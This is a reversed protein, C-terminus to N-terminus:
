GASLPHDLWRVPFRDGATEIFKDLQELTLPGPLPYRAPITRQLDTHYRILTAFDRPFKDEEVGVFEGRQRARHLVARWRDISPLGISDTGHSFLMMYIEDYPETDLYQELWNLSPEMNFKMWFPVSGTRLAWMPELAIFSEVLLRNALLQRQKYWWRYLEAVLPSLHEPEEFVIRRVRYGRERAFREVDDRLAPEFGWEAEPRDGDAAPPSWQRRHSQYRGLFDAVREGGHFFEEPTAGGM